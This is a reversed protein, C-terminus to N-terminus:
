AGQRVGRRNHGGCGRCQWGPSVCLPVRARLLARYLEGFAAPDVKAAEALDADAFADDPYTTFARAELADEMSEEESNGSTVVDFATM